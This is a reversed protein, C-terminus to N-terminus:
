CLAQQSRGRNWSRRLITLLGAWIIAILHPSTLSVTTTAIESCITWVTETVTDAAWIFGFSENQARALALLWGVIVLGALQNM